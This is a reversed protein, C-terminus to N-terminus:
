SGTRGDTLVEFVRVKEVRGKVAIPGCDRVRVRDGVAALTEETILMTTALEKNLGEVRSAVNVPDGIVTYKIRDRGGVNGAFVAGTHIGIGMQLRPLGAAEWRRNLADLAHNMAVASQVANWAHDPDDVPAGFVAMVADGVFKEVAGGHRELIARLDAFYRRMRARLAEPDTSEGLATSGVLDCFLVTVVKRMERQAPTAALETGCASCFRAEDANDRGCGPCAAM